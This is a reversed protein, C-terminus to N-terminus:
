LTKWRFNRRKFLEKLIANSAMKQEGPKKPNEQMYHYLYIKISSCHMTKWIYDLGLDAIDEMQQDQIASFHHVM